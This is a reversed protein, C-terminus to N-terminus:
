VCQNRLHIYRIKTIVFWYTRAYFFNSFSYIKVDEHYNKKRQTFSVYIEKKYFGTKVLLFEGIEGLWHQLDENKLKM